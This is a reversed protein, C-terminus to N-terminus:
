RTLREYVKKASEKDTKGILDELGLIALVCRSINKTQSLPNYDSASFILSHVMEFATFTVLEEESEFGKAMRVLQANSKDAIRDKLGSISSMQGRISEAVGSGPGGYYNEMGKHDAICHHIFATFKAAQKVLEELAAGAIQVEPGLITATIKIASGAITGSSVIIDESEREVSFDAALDTLGVNTKQAEDAMEKQKKTQRRRKLGEDKKADEKSNAKAKKVRDMHEIATCINKAAVVSNVAEKICGTVTDGYEEWFDGFASASGMLATRVGEPIWELMSDVHEALADLLDDAKKSASNYSNVLFDTIYDGLFARAEESKEEVSKDLDEKNDSYDAMKDLATDLGALFKQKFTEPKEIGYEELIKDLTPKEEEKKEFLPEVEEEIDKAAERATFFLETMSKIFSTEEEEPEEKKEEEEEAREYELHSLVSNIRNMSDTSLVKAAIGQLTDVHLKEAVEDGIDKGVFRLFRGGTRHINERMFTSDMTLRGTTKLDGMSRHLEKDGRNMDMETKARHVLQLARAFLKWDIATKRKFLYMREGAIFDNVDSSEKLFDMSDDIQTSLLSHMANYITTRGVYMHSNEGYSSRMFEEILDNRGEPNVYDREGRGVINWYLNVKSIDLVDRHELARFFLAKEQKSLANFGVLLAAHEEGARDDTFDKNSFASLQATFIEEDYKEKESEYGELDKLAKGSEENGVERIFDREIARRKVQENEIEHLMDLGHMILEWDFTSKRDLAGKKFDDKTIPRGSFNSNDKFQFSLVSLLAKRVHDPKFARKVQSGTGVEDLFRERILLRKNPDVYGTKKKEADKAAIERESYDLINRDQLVEILKWLDNKADFQLFREKISKSVDSDPDELDKRLAKYLDDATNIENQEIFTTQQKGEIKNAAIISTTGDSLIKKDVSEERKAEKKHDILLRTFQMAEDFVAKNYEDTYLKKVAMDYDIYVGIVKDKMFCDAAETIADYTKGKEAESQLLAGMGRYVTAEGGATVTIALAFLKKEQPSLKNYAEKDWPGEGDKIIADLDFSTKQGEYAKQEGYVDDFTVAGTENFIYQRKGPDDVIDKIKQTYEEKFKEVDFVKGENNLVLEILQGRFFESLGTKYRGLDAGETVNVDPNEELAANIMGSLKDELFLFEKKRRITDALTQMQGLEAGATFFLTRMRKEFELKERRVVPNNIELDDMSSIADYGQLFIAVKKEYEESELFDSDTGTEAVTFMLNPDTNKYFWAVFMDQKEKSFGQGEAFNRLRVVYKDDAKIETGVIEQTYREIDETTKGLTFFSASLNKGKEKEATVLRAFEREARLTEESKRVQKKEETRRRVMEQLFDKALQDAIRKREQKAAATNGKVDPLDKAHVFVYQRYTVEFDNVSAGELGAPFEATKLANEIDAAYLKQRAGIIKLEQELTGEKYLVKFSAGREQYLLAVYTLPDMEESKKLDSIGNWVKNIHEEISGRGTIKFKMFGSDLFEKLKGSLEDVKQKRRKSLDDESVKLKDCEADWQKLEEMLMDYNAALYQEAVFEPIKSERVADMLVGATDNLKEMYLDFADDDQIKIIEEWVDPDKKLREIIPKFKGRDFNLLRNTREEERERLEKAENFLKREEETKGHSSLIYERFSTKLANWKADDPICMDKKLRLRYAKMEDLSLKLDESSLFKELDLYRDIYKEGLEDIGNQYDSTKYTLFVSNNDAGDSLLWIDQGMLHLEHQLDGPTLTKREMYGPLEVTQFAEEVAAIMTDKLAQHSKDTNSKRTLPPLVGKKNKKCFYAACKAAMGKDELIEWTKRAYILRREREIIEFNANGVRPTDGQVKRYQYFIEGDNKVDETFRSLLRTYEIQKEREERTPDKKEEKKKIPVVIEDTLDELLEESVQEAEKPLTERYEAELRAGEPSVFLIHKLEGRVSSIFDAKDFFIMRYDMAKVMDSFVVDRAPPSVKKEIESRLINRFDEKRDLIAKVKKEYLEADKELVLSGVLETGGAIEFCSKPLIDNLAAYRTEWTEYEEETGVTQRKILTKISQLFAEEDENEFLKKDEKLKEFLLRELQPLGLTIDRTERSRILTRATAENAKITDESAIQEAIVDSEDVTVEETETVETEEPVEEQAEEQKVDDFVPAPEEAEKVDSIQPM